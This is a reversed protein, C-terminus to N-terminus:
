HFISRPLLWCLMRPFLAAWGLGLKYIGHVQIRTSKAVCSKCIYCHVLGRQRFVSSDQRKSTEASSHRSPISETKNSCSCLLKDDQEEKSNRPNTPPTPHCESVSAEHQSQEARTHENKLSPQLKLPALVQQRRQLLTTNEIEIHPNILRGISREEQLLDLPVSRDTGRVEIIQNEKKEMIDPRTENEKSISGVAYEDALVSSGGPRPHAIGHFKGNSLERQQKRSEKFAPGRHYIDVFATGSIPNCVVTNRKAKGAKMKNLRPQTSESNEKPINMALTLNEVTNNMNDDYHSNM